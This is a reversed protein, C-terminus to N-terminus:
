DGAQTAPRLAALLAARDFPKALIEAAGLFRAARLMDGAAPGGSMAVVRVRPAARALERILELGDRGPMYLDSLVADAPDGRLARLAAGGDAAEAVAFGAGELLARVAGRVAADDDVVLVRM